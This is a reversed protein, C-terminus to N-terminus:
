MINKRKKESGVIEDAYQLIDDQTAEPHEDLYEIMADIQEDKQLYLCLGLGSNDSLVEQKVLLKMRNMFIIQKDTMQKTM